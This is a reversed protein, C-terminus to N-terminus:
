YVDQRDMSYVDSLLYFSVVCSYSDKKHRKNVRRELEDMKGCNDHHHCVYSLTNFEQNM